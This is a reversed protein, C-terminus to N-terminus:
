LIVGLIGMLAIFAWLVNLVLPQKIKKIFSTYIIGFSGFLNMSQYLVDVSIIELNLLIYAALVLLIGFAGIIESFSKKNM